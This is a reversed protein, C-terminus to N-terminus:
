KVRNLGMAKLMWKPLHKEPNRNKLNIYWGLKQAVPVKHTEVFEILTGDQDEIYSFRGGAEGMDFTEGTDITFPFGAKACEEKLDEMRQVDFCLHIFGWDGWYRNEFIKRCDTREVAQVLEIKTPGLLQAFPGKRLQPHSLLVRRVKKDGQPLDSFCDAVETVDYEVKSYGLVDAYLKLAKDIDSVGIMSGAVGGTKGAFKTKSFVVQEQVVNFINGNPDEVFFHPEGNPATKLAGLVKAGEKKMYDYSAKVDRSKIRCIYLGYDGLQIPFEAKETNRSTFQWIEFGGGGEMSLALTATRKQVVGGTYPTMLPAEAAEEFVKVDVGFFKRYWKWIEEVNPVGIGMQQIGCIIKGM